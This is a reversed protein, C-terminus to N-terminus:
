CNAVFHGPSDVWPMKVLMTTDALEGALVDVGQTPYLQLAPRCNPTKRCGSFTLTTHQGFNDEMDMRLLEGSKLGMRVSKFTGDSHNPTTELWDM